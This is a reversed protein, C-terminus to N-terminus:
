SGGDDPNGQIAGALDWRQATERLWDAWEEVEPGYEGDVAGEMIQRLDDRAEEAEQGFLSRIDQRLEEPLSSLLEGFRETWDEVEDGYDGELGDEAIDQLEEAREDAPLDQLEQLDRRLGDPLWDGIGIRPMSGFVDAADERAQDVAEEAERRADELAQEAEEVAQRARERAEDSGGEAAQEAEDRAEDLADRAEDLAQEAEEQAQEAEEQAAKVADELEDAPAAAAAPALLVAAATLAAAGAGTVTGRRARLRLNVDTEEIMSGPRAAVPGHPGAAPPRGTTDPLPVEQLHHEGGQAASSHLGM